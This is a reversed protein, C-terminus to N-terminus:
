NEKDDHDARGRCDPCLLSNPDPLENLDLPDSCAICLANEPDDSWVGFVTEFALADAENCRQSGTM